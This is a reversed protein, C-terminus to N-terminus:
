QRVREESVICRENFFIIGNLHKPLGNKGIGSTFDGYRHPVVGAVNDEALTSRDNVLEPWLTFLTFRLTWPQQFSPILTELQFETTHASSFNPFFVPQWTTRTWHDIDILHFDFIWMDSASLKLTRTSRRALPAELPWADNRNTYMFFFTHNTAKGFMENRKKM